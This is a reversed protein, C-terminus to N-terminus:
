SWGGIIANMMRAPVAIKPSVLRPTRNTGNSSEITAVAATHRAPAIRKPPSYAPASDASIKLAM